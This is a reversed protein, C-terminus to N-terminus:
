FRYQQIQICLFLQETMYRKLNETYLYGDPGVLSTHFILSQSTACSCGGAGDDGMQQLGMQKRLINMHLRSVFCGTGRRYKLLDYIPQLSQQRDEGSCRDCGHGRQYIPNLMLFIRCRVRLSIQQSHFVLKYLLRYVRYYMM